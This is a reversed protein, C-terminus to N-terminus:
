LLMNLLFDKDIQHKVKTHDDISNIRKIANIHRIRLRELKRLHEQENEFKSIIINAASIINLNLEEAYDKVFGNIAYSSYTNSLIDKAEFYKADYIRSQESILYRHKSRLAHEFRGITNEMLTIRFMYILQLEKERPSLFDIAEVEINTISNIKLRAALHLRDIQPGSMNYERVIVDFDLESIERLLIMNHSSYIVTNDVTTAITISSMINEM